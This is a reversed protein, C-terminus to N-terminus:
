LDLMEGTELKIVPNPEKDAYALFENATSQPQQISCMTLLITVQTPLSTALRGTVSNDRGIHESKDNPATNDHPESDDEDSEEAKDDIMQYLSTDGTIDEDQLDMNVSHIATTDLMADIVNKLRFESDKKRLFKEVEQSEKDLGELDEFYWDSDLGLDGM